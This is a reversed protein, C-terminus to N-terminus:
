WRWYKSITSAITSFATEQYRVEGWSNLVAKGTKDVVLARGSAADAYLADATGPLISIAFLKNFVGVEVLRKKPM